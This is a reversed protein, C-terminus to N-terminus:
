TLPKGFPLIIKSPTMIAFGVPDRQNGCARVTKGREFASRYISLFEKDEIRNAEGHHVPKPFGDEPVREKQHFQKLMLYSRNIAMEANEQYLYFVLTESTIAMPSLQVELTVRYPFFKREGTTRNVMRRALEGTGIIRVEESPDRM